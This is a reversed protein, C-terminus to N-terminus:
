DWPLVEPAEGSFAGPLVLTLTATKEDRQKELVVERVIFEYERYIMADPAELTVTTNPAWLHGAADRWTSVRVQYSAVGGFMRGLQARTAAPVDASVADQVQFTAPRLVGELFPNRVTYSDGPLGIGTMEWGTIHSYYSQPDFAPTVSLLPSEGQRLRAVPRGPTVSQWFLLAGDATNTIVLNRQKALQALFAMIKTGPGNAAREFPAGPSADFQVPIGFPRVLARALDRLDLGDKELTEWTSAPPNCDALVGPRAYGSGSVTKSEASISPAVDMLTGSFVREGGVSLELPQFTFPRFIRRFTERDPEFPATFGVTDISDMSRTITVGEWFRFREGSVLLAVEDPDSVPATSARATPADLQAPIALVTGPVLPETVGPNARQIDGAGDPTGYERRAIREFTDGPQTVYRGNPM